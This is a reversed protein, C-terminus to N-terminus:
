GSNLAFNIKRHRHFPGSSKRFSFLGLEATWKSARDTPSLLAGRTSGQNDGRGDQQPLWVFVQQLRVCIAKVKM